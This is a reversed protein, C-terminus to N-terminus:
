TRETGYKELWAGSAQYVLPLGRLLGAAFEDNFWVELQADTGSAQDVTGGVIVAGYIRANRELVLTGPTVLAGHAHIADLQVSETAEPSRAPVSQGTGIPAFRVHANVVFLGEMYDADLVLEGLNDARPPAQDLTDVFVLGHHDGVASSRFAESAPVGRGTEIRGDRYLLGDQGRVYYAGDRLAADKMTQYDWRDLRLGPSPEQHVQVNTPMAVSGAPQPTFFVAGGIFLDFWRDERPEMDAYAQGTVAALSTKVPIDRVAGLRVDGNVVLDGWHVSVPLPKAGAQVPGNVGLQVGARIPPLQAAGLQIALTRMLRRAHATVQVTCLLGPRAPGYVALRTIRGLAGLARFWGDSPDNLLRDDSPRAADYLLDPRDETGTFQSQGAADFFAPSGDAGPQRKAFLARAPGAPASSPDHFWRVVLDAGAEALHRAVAEDKAAAVSEIEQAAVNMSVTALMSLIMVILVAGILASGRETRVDNMDEEKILTSCISV